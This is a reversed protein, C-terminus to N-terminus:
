SIPNSPVWEVFRQKGGAGWESMGYGISNDTGVWRAGAIHDRSFFIELTREDLTKACHDWFVRANGTRPRTTYRKM